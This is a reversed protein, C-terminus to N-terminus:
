KDKRSLFYALVAIIGFAALLVEIVREVDFEKM